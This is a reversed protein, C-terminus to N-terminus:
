YLSHESVKWLGINRKDHDINVGVKFLKKGSGEWPLLYEKSDIQALAKEATDNLKFEFCYVFNRTEVLTDIRGAAIRVESHCNLGMMSFVLHVVTEYYNETERIIDYPISAMYQRLANIAGEVDGDLLADPLMVFLANANDAPAQFYQKLLSKAFSSRVELNPYDLIFKEREEDYDSITLYGSQYLVPLADLNEIDYKRFSEYGIRMNSLNVINIKQKSILNIFFTPTGTEYWYPLFEGTKDFHNLLGFPNYVTIPKGSFRYGNYYLRLKEMYDDRSRGTEELISEIEPAFNQETEKQTLGCIDAYRPDLTLDVLHNLDSFISAHSFKTVGTLFVFRLYKDSQKLIGYFGKLKDRMINHLSSDTMTDLLPKDYEDIIVM